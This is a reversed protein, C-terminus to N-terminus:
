AAEDAFSQTAAWWRSADRIEAETVGFGEKLDQVGGEVRALEAVEEAPIRRGRIVPRGGLMEPDVEIYELDPIARVAWGGRRLQQSIRELNRPSIVQQWPLDGIDYPGHETAVVIMGGSTTALGPAHTLPWASGTESRLTAIAQRIQRHTAGRDLLEHVVMAEAVDQFSYVRPRADSQSSRIYGRRAWQGVKQGSVGALRGVDHALYSGVPPLEQITGESSQM